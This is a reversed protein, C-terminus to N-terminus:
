WTIDVIVPMHDSVWRRYAVFADEVAPYGGPSMGIVVSEIDDLYSELYNANMCEAILELTLPNASSTNGTAPNHRIFLQDYPESYCDNITMGNWAQNYDILSSNDNAILQTFRGGGGALNFGQAAWADAGRSNPTAVDNDFAINTDGMILCIHGQTAFEQVRALNRNGNRVGLWWGPRPAHFGAILINRQPNAVTRFYGLYPPRDTNPGNPFGIVNGQNDLYQGQFAQYNTVAGTRWVFVYEENNTSYIPSAQSQWNAARGINSLENRLDLGIVTAQGGRMENMCIVDVGYNEIVQAIFSILEPGHSNHKALGYVQINWYMVTIQAM